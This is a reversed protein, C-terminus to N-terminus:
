FISLDDGQHIIKLTINKGRLEQIVPDYDRDEGFSGADVIVVIPNMKRMTISQVCAHIIRLDESATILVVSSGKQFYPAQIEVLASIPQSGKDQIGALLDLIKIFQRSGREAPLITSIQGATALGVAHNHDLAYNAISAAMSICYEYTEPPIKVAKQEHFIWFRDLKEVERTEEVRAHVAANSDLFIWVDSQPDEDFEKVMLRGRRASSPWHIRNLSDSTTYERIGAAYPTIEFTKRRMTSGGPLLGPKLPFNQLKSFYPFVMLSDAAPFETSKQFMGLPDGSSIRTPGLPILGRRYLLSYAIYSRRDKKKVNSLVRSGNEGLLMSHDRIELWLKALISQNHILYREEFVQGVLHRTIRATRQISIGNLSFIALVFCIIIIAISLFLVRYYILSDTRSIGALSAIILFLFVWFGGRVRFMFM